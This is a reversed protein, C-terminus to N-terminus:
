RFDEGFIGWTRNQHECQSNTDAYIKIGLKFCDAQFYSDPHCDEGPVFRFEIEQLVSRHILVCGLGVHAVEKVSGDVFGIEEGNVFNFCKINGPAQYFRKQLCLKRWRGEDRDYLAGVVQKNHFLLTEIINSGPFVDTELHLLYDYGGRLFHSRCANHSDKMREIVSTSIGNLHVAEFKYNHKGYKESFIDTMIKTYQRGTATNDSLFIDFDPYNFRM